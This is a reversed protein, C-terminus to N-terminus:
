RKEHLYIALYFLFEPVNFWAVVIMVSNISCSTRAMISPFDSHFPFWKFSAWFGFMLVLTWIIEHYTYYMFSVWNISHKINTGNINITGTGTSLVCFHRKLMNLGSNEVLFVKHQIGFCSNILPLHDMDFTTAHTYITWLFTHIYFMWYLIQILKEKGFQTVRTTHICFLYRLLSAYFSYLIFSFLSFYVYFKILHCAYPTILNVLPYFSETLTVAIAWIPWFIIHIKAQTVMMMGNVSTERRLMQVTRLQILMGTLVLIIQIIPIVLLSIMPPLVAQRYLDIDTFSSFTRYHDPSTTDLHKHDVSQTKNVDIKISTIAPILSENHSYITFGLFSRTYPAYNYFPFQLAM